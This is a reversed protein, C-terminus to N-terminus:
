VGRLGWARFELVWFSRQHLWSLQFMLEHHNSAALRRYNESFADLSDHGMKGGCGYARFKLLGSASLRFNSLEKLSSFSM